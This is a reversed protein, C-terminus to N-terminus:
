LFMLYKEYTQNLIETPVRHINRVALCKTQYRNVTEPRQSAICSSQLNTKYLASIIKLIARVNRLFCRISEIPKFSAKLRFENLSYKTNTNYQKLHWSIAM